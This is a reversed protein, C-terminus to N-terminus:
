KRPQVYKFRPKLIRVVQSRYKMITSNYFIFQTRCVTMGKNFYKRLLEIIILYRCISTCESLFFRFCNNRSVSKLKITHLFPKGFQHRILINENIFMFAYVRYYLKMIMLELLPAIISKSQRLGVM